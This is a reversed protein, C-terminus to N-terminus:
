VGAFQDGSLRGRFFDQVERRLRVWHDELGEREELSLENYTKGLGPFYWATFAWFGSAPPLAPSDESIIGTAGTLEWSALLEGQDAIAVAEVWTAERQAGHYPKMLELLRELRQADNAEPGAFRHTYRSEWGTGLAPVVLGGDSAISLVSGAQSWDLAKAQAITEHTGGAEDPIAQLGLQFPTAPSLPLGELMWRM